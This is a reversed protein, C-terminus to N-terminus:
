WRLTHDRAWAKGTIEHDSPDPNMGTPDNATVHVFGQGERWVTPAGCGDCWPFGKRAHEKRLEQETM